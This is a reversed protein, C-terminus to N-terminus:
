IFPSTGKPAWYPAVYMYPFNQLDEFIKKEHVVPRFANIHLMSFGQPLSILYQELLTGPTM